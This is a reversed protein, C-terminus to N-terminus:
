LSSLSQVSFMRATERLQTHFHNYLSVPLSTVLLQLLLSLRIRSLHCPPVGPVVGARPPGAGGIGSTHDPGRASDGLGCPQRM